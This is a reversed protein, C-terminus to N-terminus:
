AKEESDIMNRTFNNDFEDGFDESVLYAFFNMATLVGYMFHVDGHTVDYNGKLIGVDIRDFINKLTSKEIDNLEIM